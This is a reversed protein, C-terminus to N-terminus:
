VDPSPEIRFSADKDVENYIIKFTIQWENDAKIQLEACHDWCSDGGLIYQRMGDFVLTLEESTLGLREAISGSNNDSHFDIREAIMDLEDSRERGVVEHNLYSVVTQADLENLQNLDPEDWPVQTYMWDGGFNLDVCLLDAVEEVPVGNLVRKGRAYSECIANVRGQVESLDRLHKLKNFKNKNM